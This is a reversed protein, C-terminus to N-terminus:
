ILLDLQCDIRNMHPRLCFDPVILLKRCYNSEYYNPGKIKEVFKLDFMTKMHSQTM